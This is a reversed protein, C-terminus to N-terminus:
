IKIAAVKAHGPKNCSPKDATAVPLVSVPTVLKSVSRDYSIAFARHEIHKPM